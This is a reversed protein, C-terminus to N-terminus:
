SFWLSDCCRARPGTRGGRLYIHIVQGRETGATDGDNRQRMLKRQRWSGEESFGARTKANNGQKTQM